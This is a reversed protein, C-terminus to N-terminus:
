GTAWARGRGPSFAPGLQHVTHHIARDLHRLLGGCVGVLPRRGWVIGLTAGAVLLVLLALVPILYNVAIRGGALDEVPVAAPLMQGIFDTGGWLFMLWGWTLLVAPGLLLMVGRWGIVSALNLRLAAVGLLLIVAGAACDVLPGNSGGGVVQSAMLLNHFPGVVVVSVAAVTALVGVAISILDIPGRIRWLWMALALGLCVLAAAAVIHLWVPATWLPLTVFPAEWVPAGTDGTSGTDRSAITLGFPSQVLAIM